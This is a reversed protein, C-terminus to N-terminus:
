VANSDRLLTNFQCFFEPPIYILPLEHAARHKMIIILVVDLLFPQGCVPVASRVGLDGHLLCILIKM